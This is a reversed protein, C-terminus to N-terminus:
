WEVILFYVIQNFYPGFVKVNMEDFFYIVYLCIFLHKVDYM